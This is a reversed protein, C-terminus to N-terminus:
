DQHRKSGARCGIDDNNKPFFPLFELREFHDARALARRLGRSHPHFQFHEKAQAASHLFARDFVRNLQGLFLIARHRGHKLFRCLHRPAVFDQRRGSLPTESTEGSASRMSDLNPTLPECKGLLMMDRRMAAFIVPTAPYTGGRTSVLVSRSFITSVVFSHIMSRTPM